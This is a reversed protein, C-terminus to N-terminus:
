TMSRSRLDKGSRNAVQGGAQTIFVVVMLAIDTTIAEGTPPMRPRESRM